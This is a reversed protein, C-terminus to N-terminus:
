YQAQRGDVLSAERQDQEAVCAARYRLLVPLRPTFTALFGEAEHLGDFFVAAELSDSTEWATSGSLYTGPPFHALEAVLQECVGDGDPWSEIRQEDSPRLLRDAVKLDPTEASRALRVEGAGHKAGVVAFLRRQVAEPVSLPEPRTIRVGRLQHEIRFHYGAVAGFGFPPLFGYRERWARVPDLPVSQPVEM